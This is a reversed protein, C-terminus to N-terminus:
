ELSAASLANLADTLPKIAADFLGDLAQIQTENPAFLTKGERYGIISARSVGLAAAVDADKVASHDKLANLCSRAADTLATPGEPPRSRHRKGNAAAFAANKIQEPVSQTAEATAPILSDIDAPAIGLKDFANGVDEVAHLLILEVLASTEDGSDIWTKLVNAGVIKEVDGSLAEYTVDGFGDNWADSEDGPEQPPDGEMLVYAQEVAVLHDEIRKGLPARLNDKIAEVVLAVAAKQQTKRTAGLAIAVKGDAQLRRATSLIADKGGTMSPIDPLIKLAETM